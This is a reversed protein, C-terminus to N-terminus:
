PCVAVGNTRKNDPPAKTSFPLTSYNQGFGHLGCLRFYKSKPGKYVFNASEHGSLFFFSLSVLQFFWDTVSFSLLLLFFDLLGLLTPIQRSGPHTSSGRSGYEPTGFCHKKSRPREHSMSFFVSAMRLGHLCFHFRPTNSSYSSKHTPDWGRTKCFLFSEDLSVLEQNKIM